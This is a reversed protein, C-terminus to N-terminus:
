HVHEARQCQCYSKGHLQRLLLMSHQGKDPWRGGGGGAGRM